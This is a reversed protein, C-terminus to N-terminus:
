QRRVKKTLGQQWGRPTTTYERRANRDKFVLCYHKAQRERDSASPLPAGTSEGEHLARDPGEGGTVTSLIRDLRWGSEDPQYRGPASSGPDQGATRPGTQKQVPSNSGPESRVSAAHRVCALRVLIRVETRYYLPARTLLVHTVYVKTPSLWTFAQSIGYSDESHRCKSPFTSCDM